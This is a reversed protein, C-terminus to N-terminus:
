GATGVKGQQVRWGRDWGGQRATGEKGQGARSYGGQGATSEM